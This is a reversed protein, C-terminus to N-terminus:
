RQKNIPKNEQFINQGMRLIYDYPLIASSIM